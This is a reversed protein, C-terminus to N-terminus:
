TFGQGSALSNGCNHLMSFAASCQASFFGESAMLFLYPQSYLGDFDRLDANVGIRLYCGQNRPVNRATIPKAYLKCFESELEDDLPVAALRARWVINLFRSKQM